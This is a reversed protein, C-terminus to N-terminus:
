NTEMSEKLAMNFELQLPAVYRFDTILLIIKAMTHDKPDHNVDIMHQLLEVLYESSDSAISAGEPSLEVDSYYFPLIFLM